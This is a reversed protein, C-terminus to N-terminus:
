KLSQAAHAGSIRGSTVAFQVASGSMYVQNYIVRNACEGGAYLNNIISGDERLVQFNENTKVGGFTGMTKPYVKLAYYPSSEIPVLFNDSKGLSDTATKAGENYDNMTKVFTEAPVGMEKALDEYTEAKVVEGTSLSAEILEVTKANAQSSDIILWSKEQQSVINTIIAYHTEENVFREGKENVLIKTWDWALGSTGKVKSDFSLGIAWPDEYLAAGVKEAMLIGDGMSGASAASLESTGVLEPTFRKLLEENKAFGGAALIVKKAHITVKGDKGEAVVGVVSGDSDTILETAKTETMVKINNKRVFNDISQILAAGGNKGDIEAPFHLRKVYDVGFGEISGYKHGVYDVLWETTVVAEDMFKDVLDYDPYIGEPNSTAQREKWLEMWSQKTDNIGLERQFKTDTASIGGGSLATSGGTIALKELVIVNAGQEFASTAATLGTGGAGVVVLDTTFELDKQDITAGGTKLAEVDGGALKVCEEVAKLIATSTFTAGSVSDVSLTQGNLIEDPLREIAIDGIGSTEEHELVKISVISVDDFAVEVKVDGNHGMASATYTGSKYIANENQVKDNPKNKATCGVVGLAMLLALMFSLYIKTKKM